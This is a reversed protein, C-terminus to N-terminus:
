DLPDFLHLDVVVAPAGFRHRVAVANALRDPGITEPNPYDIGVGRVTGSTLRLPRIKWLRRLTLAAVPTARPVVSCIAAGDIAARGAFRRVWRAASGDFWGATPFDAHRLVRSANALGFHTHTNGIDLLLLRM